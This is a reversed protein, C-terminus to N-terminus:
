LMEAFSQVRTRLQEYSEMQQDVELYLLPIGAAELEEKIIPYEFEEPDCFKMMLMVVGDAKKEKVMDILMQGKEKLPDYLFTDGRQDAMRYAMKELATGTERAPTRFMRSQHSLDDAAIAIDNEAFIEMLEVPESILGTAILKIGKYDEAPQAKLQATIERIVPTYEAKDMFCAAKMVLHRTKADLTIPYDAATEAFDRMAKRWDEYIRFAEEISEETIEHGCIKELESKVHNFETFLFDIGGGIKRNQPYVIPIMPIEPVAYKWNELVCKLTDCFAPIIVGKLNRYTGNLGFEMNAKMITCCFGQLYKDALKIETKGGWMGVPLYGAAYVLEEPVHLPFCGFLERGSAAASAAMTRGPTSASAALQTILTKYDSM